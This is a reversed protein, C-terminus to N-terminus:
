RNYYYRSVFKEVPDRIISFWVPQYKVTANGIFNGFDIFHVHRDYILPRSKIKNVIQNVHNQQKKVTLHRPDPQGYRKHTYNNVQFSLFANYNNFFNHPIYFAAKNKIFIKKIRNIRINAFYLITIKFVSDDM